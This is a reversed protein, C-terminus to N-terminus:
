SIRTRHWGRSTKTVPTVRLSVLPLLASVLAQMLALRSRSM